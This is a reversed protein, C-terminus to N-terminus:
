RGAGRGAAAGWRPLFPFGAGAEALEESPAPRAAAGAEREAPTPSAFQLSYLHAYLGNLAM